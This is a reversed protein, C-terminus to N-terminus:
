RGVATQPTVELKEVALGQAKLRNLLAEYASPEVTPKRSLVWLYERKPESVAALEYGDDLDVVWYDGWVAPIFSLWAPAFRVELKPSNMGGILRAAGKAADVSGDARTCQNLVEVMGDGLLRYQARTNGACQKQFRNPFKAIEYWTGLYRQLNLSAIPQLPAAPKQTPQARAVGPMIASACCLVLALTLPSPFISHIKTIRM